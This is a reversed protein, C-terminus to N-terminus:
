EQKDLWIPNGVCVRYGHTLDNIVVRYFRRRQVALALSQPLAGNFLSSYAVGQDTIVQLEYATSKQWTQPHVDGVRLTLIMGEHYAIQAGMPSGDIMMQVGFGGAAFDGCRMKQLFDSHFRKKTYFTSPCACNVAGHTDSGASTYVHKGMQLLEAWLDYSKFSAQTRYNGVLTELYSWEGLYYDTPESSALLNKPHAHVMCGGISRVYTAIERIRELTFKPYNFKGTLENGCFEFEPFNALVMALGYKHPFIMNYHLWKMTCKKDQLDTIQTGPETGYLFREESWEPLFYGRMQRHDVLIAFDMQQEDMRVTWEGIPTKGDSTGGANSHAHLDGYYAKTGAYHADLASFDANAGIVTHPDSTKTTWANEQDEIHDPANAPPVPARMAVSAFGNIETNKVEINEVEGRYSVVCAANGRTDTIHCNEICLSCHANALHPQLPAEGPRSANHLVTNKLRLAIGASEGSYCTTLLGHEGMLGGLYSNLIEIRSDIGNIPCNNFTRAINSFGLMQISGNIRLNKITARHANIYGFTAGCGGDSFNDDLFINELLIERKYPLDARVPDVNYLAHGCPSTHRVNRFILKCDGAIESRWDVFRTSVSTSVGDLLFYTVDAGRLAIGGRDFGGQLVSEEALDERAKSLTPALLPDSGKEVPDIGAKAGLIAVPRKILVEEKYSMYAVFHVGPALLIVPTEASALPVGEIIEDPIETAKELAAAITSFLNVGEKGAYTVGTSTFQDTDLEYVGRPMPIVAYYGKPLQKM